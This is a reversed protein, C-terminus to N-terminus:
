LEIQRGKARAAAIYNGLAAESRALLQQGRPDDPNELVSARLKNVLAVYEPDPTELPPRAPVKSQAEKQGMRNKYAEETAAMRAELGMDPYGPAGIRTYLVFSGLGLGALLLAALIVNSASTANGAGKAAGLAKDAALLRRSVELRAREAEDPSIVGRAEDRELEKLQDRYVQLDFAAAPAADRGRLIALVLFGAIILTTAGAVLTFLWIDNM